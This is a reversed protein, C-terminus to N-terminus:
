CDCKAVLVVKVGEIWGVVICIGGSNDVFICGVCLGLLSKIADKWM